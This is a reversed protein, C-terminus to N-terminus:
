TYSVAGIEHQPLLRGDIFRAPFTRPAPSTRAPVDLAGRHGRGIEAVDEVNMTAPEVQDKRMMLVFDGLRAARMARGHHRIVPHVVAKYFDFTCLHRLTEAIKSCYRLKAVIPLSFDNSILHQHSM